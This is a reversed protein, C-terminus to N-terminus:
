YNHSGCDYKECCPCWGGAKVFGGADLFRSFEEFDKILSERHLDINKSKANEAKIVKEIKPM